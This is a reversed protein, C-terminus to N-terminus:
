CRAARRCRSAAIAAVFAGVALGVSDPEPVAVTINVFDDSGGLYEGSFNSGGTPADYFIQWQGGLASFTDGNGLPTGALTFLGGNWTGSYNILSLTSGPAFASPSLALNSLALDVTGSLNLDGSVIMLDGGLSLQVSSDVEYAFTSGSSFGLTGSALTEVSAGPALTGAIDLAAAISGTGGLRAGSSVSVLGTGTNTGNVLLTGQSVATSGVYSNTGSLAQTGVGTKVLEINEFVRGEYSDSGSAVNITLARVNAGSNFVSGGSGEGRLGQVTTAVNNLSLRGDHNVTLRNNAMAAAFRSGSVLTGNQITIGGTIAYDAGASTNTLNLTSAGAKVFGGSTQIAANSALNQSGGTAWFIFEQSGSALVANVTKNSGAGIVGGSGVTITTNAGSVSITDTYRMAYVIPNASLTVAATNVVDTSTATNLSTSTYTANGFGTLSGGYTLFNSDSRIAWPAVIGNTVMPATGSVVLQSSAGGSAAGLTGQGTITLVGTAQRTLSAISLTTLPPTTSAGNITIGANGNFTVAGVTESTALGFRSGTLMLTAGHLTPIATSDGWRDNNNLGATNTFGDNVFALTAGPRLAITYAPNFAGSGGSAAIVGNVVIPQATDGFPTNTSAITTSLVGGVNVTVGGSFDQSAGLAVIGGTSNSLNLGPGVVLSNASTLVNPQTFSLVQRAGSVAAVSSGGGLRYRAGAGAGLTAATYSGGTATGLFMSGNGLTALNLTYSRSGEVGYIGASSATFRGSADVNGNIGVVGGPEVTIMASAALNGAAGVATPNSLRVRGRSEVSLNGTGLTGDATIELYHSSTNGSEVITGAAYDNASNSIQLPRGTVAVRFPNGATGAGDSIRGAIWDSGNHSTNNDFRLTRAADQLLTVTGAVTYGGANGGGSSSTRVTGGLTLGNYALGLGSGASGQNMNLTGGAGTVVITNTLNRDTGGNGTPMGTTASNPIATGQLSFTGGDITIDGAGFSTNITIGPNYRLIATGQTRVGGGFTSATNTFVLRGWNSTATATSTLGATGTVAGAVTFDANFNTLTITPTAALSMGGVSGTANITPQNNALGAADFAAIDASGPAVGGQWNTGVSWTTSTTGTWTIQARAPAAGVVFATVAVAVCPLPWRGGRLTAREIM